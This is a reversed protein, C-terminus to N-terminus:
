RPGRGSFEIPQPFFLHCIEEDDLQIAVYSPEIEPFTLTHVEGRDDELHISKVNDHLDTVVKTVKLGILDSMGAKKELEPFLEKAM